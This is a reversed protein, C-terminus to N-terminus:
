KTISFENDNKIQFKINFSIFIQTLEFNELYQEQFQEWSIKNNSHQESQITTAKQRIM